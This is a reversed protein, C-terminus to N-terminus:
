YRLSPRLLVLRIIPSVLFWDILHSFCDRFDCLSLLVKACASLGAFLAKICSFLYFCCTYQIASCLSLFVHVYTVTHLDVNCVYRKANVCTWCISISSMCLFVHVYTLFHVDNLADNQSRTVVDEVSELWQVFLRVSDVSVTGSATTVQMVCVVHFM